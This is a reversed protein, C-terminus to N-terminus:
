SASYFVRCLSDRYATTDGIRSALIQMGTVWSVAGGFRHWIGYLAIVSYLIARVLKRPLLNSGAWGVGAVLVVRILASALGVAVVGARSLPIIREAALLLISLGAFWFAL